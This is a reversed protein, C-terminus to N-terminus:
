NGLITTPNIKKLATTRKSEEGASSSTSKRLSADDCVCVCIRQNTLKKQIGDLKPCQSPQKKWNKWGLFITLQQQSM